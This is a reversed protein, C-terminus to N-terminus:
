ILVGGHSGNWSVIQAYWASVWNTYFYSFLKLKSKEGVFLM